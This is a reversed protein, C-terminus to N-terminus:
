GLLAALSRRAEEAEPDASDAQGWLDVFKRYSRIAEADMRRQEHIKGLMFHSKAYIDGFQMRGSTLSEINEYWEQARALDGSLYYAYALSGYYPAHEDGDPEHQYPLLSVAQEFHEVAQGVDNRALDIHGALNYWCRMLKPNLWGDIEARMEDAAREAGGIDGMELLIQGQTNLAFIRDTVSGALAFKIEANAGSLDGRALHISAKRQHLSRLLNREGVATVEDIAQNLFDLARAFQGLSLRLNALRRLADLRLGLRLRDFGVPNLLERYYEEAQAWEGQLLHADGKVMLGPAFGPIRELMKDAELLARDFRRDYIMNLALQYPYQFPYMEAPAAGAVDLADEYQGLAGHARRMYVIHNPFIQVDIISELTEICKEWEEIKWYIEGLLKVARVDDPYVEIWEQCTELAQGWSRRSRAWYYYAQIFFRERPSVHGSLEFARSRAERAKENHGPLSSYCLALFSYAMAFEPDIEVAKELSEMAEVVRVSYWSLRGDVYYRYAELSSTTIKGIDLDLDRGTRDFPPVLVNKIQTSLEDIKLLIEEEGRAEVSPLVVGDGSPINRVTASIRFRQGAKIFNGVVINEVQARAAVKELDIADGVRADLLDLDRLVFFVRDQPLVSLYRSQGLDSVLLDALANEWFDLGEEGTNNTFPLIALTPNDSSSPSEPEPRGIRFVVVALAVALIISLALVIARYKAPRLRSTVSSPEEEEHLIEDMWRDLESRYAFVSGRVSGDMRHVPLRFETEWRKCTRESRGLYAAIEKWSQLLDDAAM